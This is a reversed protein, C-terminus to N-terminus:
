KRSLRMISIQMSNLKYIIILSKLNDPVQVFNSYVQARREIFHLGLTHISISTLELNAKSVQIFFHFVINYTPLLFAKKTRRHVILVIFWIFDFLENKVEALRKEEVTCQTGRDMWVLVRKRRIHNWIYEYTRYWELNCVKWLTYISFSISYISCQKM